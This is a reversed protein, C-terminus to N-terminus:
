SSRFAGPGRWRVLADVAVAESPTCILPNIDLEELRDAEAMVFDQVAMIADVVAELDAPPKGRYGALLRAVRLDALADHIAPEGAPIMLTRSDLVLETLVGGAGITMAFGYVPDRVVGVILEAVGSKVMEEVLFGSVGRMSQAAERVAVAQALGLAVAGAETKHAVGLGKLVVPFGLREAAQAAGEPTEAMERAPVRLGHDALLTKAHHEDLLETEEASMQGLLVPAAVPRTWAEGISAAAGAAELTERLGMMPAIGQALLEAARDESLNEPLSSVMAVRAGTRQQAATLAEIGCAWAVDSARDTRPFDYVLLNLDFDCGFMAAYTDAMRTPDGWIFTHYDLPNAVTVLDSLTAKIREHQEPTLARFSTGTGLITDAM